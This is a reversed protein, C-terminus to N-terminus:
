PDLRVEEWHATFPWYDGRVERFIKWGKTQCFEIVKEKPYRELNRIMPAAWWVHGRNTFQLIASFTEGEIKWIEGPLTQSAM